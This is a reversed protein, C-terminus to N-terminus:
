GNQNKPRLLGDLIVALVIISQHRYPQVALAGERLGLSAYSADIYNRVTAIALGLQAAIAQPSRPLLVMVDRQRPSLRPLRNRVVRVLEALDDDLTALFRDAVDELHRDDEQVCIAVEDQQVRAILDQITALRSGKPVYALGTMGEAVLQAVDSVHHSFASWLLVGCRPSIVKLRRCLDLGLPKRSAGDEDSHYTLYIDLVALRFEPGMQILMQYGQVYTAAAYVHFGMDELFESVARRM